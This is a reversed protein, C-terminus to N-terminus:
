LRQQMGRFKVGRGFIVKRIHSDFGSRKFDVQILHHGLFAIRHFTQCLTDGEQKFLVLDVMKLAMAANKAKRIRMASIRKATEIAALPKSYDFDKAMERMRTVLEEALGYDRVEIASILQNSDRVFQLVKRKEERPLTRIKPLYEGAVFAESLRKTGGELENKEVLFTLAEVGEDVDRIIENAM